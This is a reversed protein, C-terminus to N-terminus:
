YTHNRTIKIFDRWNEFAAMQLSCYANQKKSSFSWKYFTVKTFVAILWTQSQCYVPFAERGNWLFHFYKYTKYKWVSSSRSSKFHEMLLGSYVLWSMVSACKCDDGPHIYLLCFFVHYLFILKCRFIMCKNIFCVHVGESRNMLTLKPSALPSSPLELKQHRNSGKGSFCPRKLGTCHVFVLRRGSRFLAHYNNLGCACLRLCDIYFTQTRTQRRTRQRSYCLVKYYNFSDSCSYKVRCWFYKAKVGGWLWYRGFYKLM